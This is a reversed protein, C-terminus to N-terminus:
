HVRSLRNTALKVGAKTIKHGHLLRGTEIKRAMKKKELGTFFAKGEKTFGNSLLIRTKRRILEEFLYTAPTTRYQRTFSLSPKGWLRNVLCERGVKQYSVFATLSKGTRLALISYTKAFHAEKEPSIQQSESEKYVFAREEPTLEYFSKVLTHQPSQQNSM